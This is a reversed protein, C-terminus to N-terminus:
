ATELGQAAEASAVEDASVQQYHDFSIQFWATGRTASGLARFLEEQAAAPLLTNFM